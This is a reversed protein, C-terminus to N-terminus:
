VCNKDKKINTLIYIHKYMKFDIDMCVKQLGDHAIYQLEASTLLGFALALFIGM